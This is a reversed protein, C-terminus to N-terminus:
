SQLATKTSNPLTVTFESGFGQKSHLRITGNLTDVLTKVIALGLGNSNEGNTPAASLKAFKKFLHKKDEPSFGQGYDKIRILVNDNNQETSISVISGSNSFKLANSILNDLIRSLASQDSDLNIIDDIEEIRLAIKKSAAANSFNMKKEQILKNLNVDTYDLSHSQAAITNADLLDQILNLGQKSIDNIRQTCDLQENDLSDMKLVDALMNIRRMPSKLDHSVMNLLMDKENNIEELQEKSTILEENTELVDNAANEIQLKLQETRLNLEELEITKQRRRRISLTLIVVVIIIMLLIIGLALNNFYQRDILAQDTTLKVQMLEKERDRREIELRSEAQQIKRASEVNEFQKRAELYAIFLEYAKEKNGLESWVESLYYYAEQKAINGIGLSDGVLITELVEKAKYHEGSKYFIKGLELSISSILYENNSAIALDYAAEASLQAQKYNGEEFYLKATSLNIQADNIKDNIKKALSRGEAYLELAKNINGLKGHISAHEELSSILSSTDKKQIRIDLANQSVELAKKFDGQTQYMESMGIYCYAMGVTDKKERFISLANFLYDYSKIFDGQLLFLRGMNNLAHAYQVSDNNQLCYNMAESYFEFSKVYRTKYLYALGKYNLSKGIESTTKQNMSENIAADSYFVTSDPQSKRYEWAIENLLQIKSLGEEKKLSEKLQNISSEAQGHVRLTVLALTILLLLTLTGRM